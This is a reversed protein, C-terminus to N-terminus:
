QPLTLSTAGWVGIENDIPTPALRRAARAKEEDLFEKTSVGTDVFLKLIESWNREKAYQIWTRTVHDVSAGKKIFFAAVEPHDAFFANEFTRTIALRGPDGSLYPETWNYIMEAIHTVAESISAHASDVAALVRRGSSM